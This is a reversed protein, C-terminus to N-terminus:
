GGSDINLWIGTIRDQSYKESDNGTSKTSEWKTEFGEVVGQFMGQSQGSPIGEGLPTNYSCSRKFEKWIIGPCRLYGQNILGWFILM